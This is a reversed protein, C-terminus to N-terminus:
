ENSLGTEEKWIKIMKPLDGIPHNCGYLILLHGHSENWMDMPNEGRNFREIYNNGFAWICFLKLNKDGLYYQLINHLNM